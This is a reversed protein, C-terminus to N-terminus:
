APGIAQRVYQLAQALKREAARPNWISLATPSLELTVLGEYGDRALGGLFERLPLRGDGLLQHQKAYSHLGPHRELWPSVERLDSLHVNVMRGRFAASSEILDLGWSALHSTDLTLSLDHEDAFALLEDPMSLILSRAREVFYARNELSIRTGDGNLRSQAAVVEELFERGVGSNLNRSRPLHVVLLRADVEQTVRLARGLFPVITNFSGSWGPYQVLPPHVSLVPLAHEQSLRRVYGAGRWDVEPSIVLEIGDFGVREAIGFIM